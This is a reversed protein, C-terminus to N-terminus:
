HGGIQDATVAVALETISKSAPIVFYGRSHLAELEVEWESAYLLVGPKVLPALFNKVDSWTM